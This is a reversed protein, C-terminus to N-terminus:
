RTCEVKVHALNGATTVYGFEDFTPVNPDLELAGSGEGKKDIKATLRIGYVGKESESLPLGPSILGSGLEIPVKEPQVASATGALLAALTITILLERHM